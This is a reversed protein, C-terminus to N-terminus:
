VKDHPPNSLIGYLISLQNSQFEDLKVDAMIIREINESFKTQVDRNDIWNRLVNSLDGDGFANSIKSPNKQKFGEFYLDKFHLTSSLSNDLTWSSLLEPLNFPGKWLMILISEIAENYPLPHTSICNKFFTLAFKELFVIEEFTWEESNFPTLRKLSLETSHSPFDYYAILEIYRPLFHKLENIPTKATAAGDNYEMLLKKPINKVPLRALLGEDKKDMCCDTCIDLPSLAKYTEFLGYAEKIIEEM